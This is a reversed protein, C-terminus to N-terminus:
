VFNQDDLYFFCLSGFRTFCHSSITFEISLFEFNQCVEFELQSDEFRAPAAAIGFHFTFSSSLPTAVNNKKVGYVSLTYV